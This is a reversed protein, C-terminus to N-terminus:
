FYYFFLFSNKLWVFYNLSLSIHHTIHNGLINQSCKQGFNNFFHLPQWSNDEKLPCYIFHNMSSPVELFFQYSSPKIKKLDVSTKNAAVHDFPLFILPWFNSLFHIASFYSHIKSDYICIRCLKVYIHSPIKSKRNSKPLTKSM